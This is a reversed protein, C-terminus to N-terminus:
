GETRHVEGDFHVMYIHIYTYMYKYGYIYIYNTNQPLQVQHYGIM